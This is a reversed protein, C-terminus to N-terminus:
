RTAGDGRPDDGGGADPRARRRAQPDPRDAPLRRLGGGALLGPRPRGAAGGRRRDAPRPDDRGPRAGLPGGALRDPPGLGQGGPRRGPSRALSVPGSDLRSLPWAVLRYVPVILVISCPWGSSSIRPSRSRARPGSAISCDPRFGIGSGSGRRSGSRRRRRGDARDGGARPRDAEVRVRRLAPRALPGHRPQLAVAGQAPGRGAARRHDAGGQPGGGGAPRRGLLRAPGPLHHLRVPRPGGQAQGGAGQRREHRAPDPVDTLDLCRAAADLDDRRSRTSSRTSCRTRRGSTPRCTAPRKGRARRSTGSGSSSGCGRCTRSRRATSCGAGTRWGTCRSSSTRARASRAIPGDVVDPIVITPINTSRLIFELAFALRGGDRRDPPLGSLDLCAAAEEIKHPDDEALNMAILFTRVTARPSHYRPDVSTAAPAVSKMEGTTAKPGAAQAAVHRPCCSLWVVAICVPVGRQFLPKRM